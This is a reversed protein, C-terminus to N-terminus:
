GIGLKGWNNDGWCTVKQDAGVVCQHSGGAAVRAAGSVGAVVHPTTECSTSVVRPPGDGGPAFYPGCKASTFGLYGMENVGWCSVAGDQTAACGTDHALALDAIQAVKVPVPTAEFYGTGQKGNGLQGYNGAGWCQATGDRLLACTTGVS